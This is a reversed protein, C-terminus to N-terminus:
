NLFKDLEFEYIVQYVGSDRDRVESTLEFIIDSNTLATELKGELIEDKQQTFISVQVAQGKWLTRDDANEINRQTIYFFTIYPINNQESPDITYAYFADVNADLGNLLLTLEALTLQAM